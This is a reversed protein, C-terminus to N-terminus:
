VLNLNLLRSPFFSFLGDTWENSDTSYIGTKENERDASLWLSVCLFRFQSYLPPPFPLFSLSSSHKKVNWKRERERMGLSLAGRGGKSQVAIEVSTVYCVREKERECASVTVSPNEKEKLPGALAALAALAPCALLLFDLSFSSAFTLQM